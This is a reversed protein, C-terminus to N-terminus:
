HGECICAYEPLDCGGCVHLDLQLRFNQPRSEVNKRIQLVVRYPMGEPLPAVSRFGHATAVMKTRVQGSPTEAILSVQTEGASIPEGETSYFVLDAHHDSSVLFEVPHPESPLLRGGRPGAERDALAFSVALATFVGIMLIRGTTQALHPLNM